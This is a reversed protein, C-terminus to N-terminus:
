SASRSSMRSSKPPVYSSPPPSMGRISPDTEYEPSLLSPNQAVLLANSQTPLHSEPLPSGAQDVGSWQAQADGTRLGRNPIPVPGQHPPRNRIVVFSRNEVTPSAASLPSMDSDSKRRRKFPWGGRRVSSERSKEEDEEDDSSSENASSGGLGFLKRVRDKRSSAPKQGGVNSAIAGMEDVVAFGQLSPVDRSPSRRIGGSSPPRSSLSRNGPKGSSGPRGHGNAGRGSSGPRSASPGPNGSSGPRSASGGSAVPLGGSNMLTSADEIVATQSRTRPHFPRAAGRPLPDLTKSPPKLTNPPPQSFQTSPPPSTRLANLSNQPQKGKLISYPTDIHARGGGVRAFGTKQSPESEDSMTTDELALKGKSRAAGAGALGLDTKSWSEMIFGTDDDSSERYPISAHEPKLYSVGAERSAAYPPHSVGTSESYARSHRRGRHRHRRRRRHATESGGCCGLAGLLGSDLTHRSSAFPVGRVLRIIGELVKILLMLAYGVYMLGM